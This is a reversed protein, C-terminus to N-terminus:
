DSGNLRIEGWDQLPWPYSVTKNVSCSGGQVSNLQEAKNNAINEAVPNLAGPKLEEWVADRGLYKGDKYWTRFQTKM